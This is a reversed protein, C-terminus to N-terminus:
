PGSGPAIARGSHRLASPNHLFTATIRVADSGTVLHRLSPTVFDSGVIYAEM